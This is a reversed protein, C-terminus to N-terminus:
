CRAGCSLSTRRGAFHRSALRGRRPAQELATHQMGILRRHCRCQNKVQVKIM